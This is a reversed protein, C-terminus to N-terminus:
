GVWGAEDGLSAARRARMRVRGATTRPIRGARYRGRGVRVVRGHSVEWRLADSIDKSLRGGTGIGTARFAGVLEAVTVEAPARDHIHQTIFARIDVPRPVNDGYRTREPMGEM